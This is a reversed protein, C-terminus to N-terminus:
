ADGIEVRFEAPVKTRYLAAIEADEATLPEGDRGFKTNWRWHRLLSIEAKTNNNASFRKLAYQYVARPLAFFDEDPMLMSWAHLPDPHPRNDDFLMSLPTRGYEDVAQLDCLCLLTKILHKTETHRLSWPLESSPVQDPDNDLELAVHLATRGYIDRANWDISLKPLEAFAEDLYDDVYSDDDDDGDDNDCSDGDDFDFPDKSDDGRFRKEEKHLARLMRGSWKSAYYHILPQGTVPHRINFNFGFRVLEKLEQTARANHRSEEVFDALFQFHHLPSDMIVVISSKPIINALMYDFVISFRANRRVLPALIRDGMKDMLFRLM